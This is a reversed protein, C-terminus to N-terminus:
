KGHCREHINSIIEFLLQVLIYLTDNGLKLKLKDIIIDLKVSIWSATLSQCLKVNVVNNMIIIGSRLDLFVNFYRRLFKMIYTFCVYILGVFM